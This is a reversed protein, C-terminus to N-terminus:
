VSASRHLLGLCLRLSATVPANRRGRCASGCSAPLGNSILHISETALRRYMLRSLLLRVAATHKPMGLMRAAAAPWCSTQCCTLNSLLYICGMPLNPRCSTQCCSASPLQPLHPPVPRPRWTDARRLGLGETEEFMFGRIGCVQVRM